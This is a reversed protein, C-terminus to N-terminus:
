APCDQIRRRTNIYSELSTERESTDCFFSISHLHLEGRLGGGTQLFGEFAGGLFAAPFAFAM